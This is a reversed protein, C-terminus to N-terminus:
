LLWNALWADGLPQLSVNHHLSCLSIVAEAPWRAVRVSLKALSGLAAQSHVFIM